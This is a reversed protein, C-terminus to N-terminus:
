SANLANLCFKAYYGSWAVALFIKNTAMACIEVSTTHCPQKDNGLGNTASKSSRMLATMKEPSLEGVVDHQDHYDCFMSSPNGAECTAPLLEKCTLSLFVQLLMCLRCAEICGVWGQQQTNFCRDVASGFSAIGKPMKICHSSDGPAGM